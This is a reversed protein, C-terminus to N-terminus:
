TLIGEKDIRSEAPMCSFPVDQFEKFAYCMVFFSHCAAHSVVGVDTQAGM